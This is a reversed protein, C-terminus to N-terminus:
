RAIGCDQAWATVLRWPSVAKPGDEMEAVTVAIAADISNQAHTHLPALLSRDLWSLELRTISM